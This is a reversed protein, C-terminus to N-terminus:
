KRELVEQTNILLFFFLMRHSNQGLSWSALEKKIVASERMSYSHLHNLSNFCARHDRSLIFLVTQRKEMKKKLSFSNKIKCKFLVELM